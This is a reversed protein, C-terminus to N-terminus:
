TLSLIPEGGAAKRVQAMKEKTIILPVVRMGALKDERKVPTM